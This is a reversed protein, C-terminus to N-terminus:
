RVTEGRLDAVDKDAIKSPANGFRGTVYNAVAAIEKDSYAAGFAPMSIIGRPTLRRTGSIVIQAVNTAAPDNVARAGAITAYPSIASVGTWDRCGVCAEQFVKKGLADAPASGEDHRVPAPPAIAAPLNLAAIAPVSRLYVVLAAIDAESMRSFSQDVAEGMPGAATGHNLAHGKSLYVSVEDDSWGGIGAAGALRHM